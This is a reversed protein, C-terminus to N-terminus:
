RAPPAFASDCGTQMSDVMGALWSDLAALQENALGHLTECGAAYVFAQIEDSFGFHRSKLNIQTILQKRRIPYPVATAASAQAASRAATAGRLAVDISFKLAELDVFASGEPAKARELLGRVQDVWLRDM